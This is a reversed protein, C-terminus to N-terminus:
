SFTEVRALPSIASAREADVKQLLKRGIQLPKLKSTFARSFLGDFLNEFKREITSDPM